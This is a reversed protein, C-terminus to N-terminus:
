RMAAGASPAAMLWNLSFRALSIQEYPHHRGNEYLLYITGDEYAALASYACPGPHIVRAIPWTRGGDLSVSVTMNQRHHSAPNSFLLIDQGRSLQPPYSAVAANCGGNLPEVLAPEIATDGFSDGGDHSWAIRRKGDGFYARSNYYLRGDQLEALTGEGTGIQVSGGIQWTEGQDDSYIVGNYHHHKLSLINEDHQTSFRAPAILRGTFPKCRLAIGPSSGHTSGRRAYYIPSIALKEHHWSRGNEEGIAVVDGPTIKEMQPPEQTVVRQIRNYPLFVRQHEPDALASGIAAHWGKEAFVPWQASWHRGGDSSRRGVIHVEVASDAPTELRRNAFALIHGGPMLGLTPIRYHQQATARFLVQQDFTISNPTM